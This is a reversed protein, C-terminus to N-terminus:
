SGLCPNTAGHLILGTSGLTGGIAMVDLAQVPPAAHVEPAVVFVLGLGLDIFGFAIVGLTGGVVEGVCSGAPQSEQGTPDILRLPNNNVYTYTSQSADSKRPCM